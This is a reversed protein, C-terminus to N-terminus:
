IPQEGGTTATGERAVGADIWASLLASSVALVVPGIFLGVLGFAILGGVVGASVLLLSLNAGRKILMPRLVNDIPGIM